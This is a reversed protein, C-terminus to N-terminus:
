GKREEKYCTTAKGLNAVKHFREMKYSPLTRRLETLTRRLETPHPTAWYLTRRLETPRADAQQIAPGLEIIPESLNNGSLQGAILLHLSVEAFPLPYIYQIFTISHIYTSYFILIFLLCIYIGRRKVHVYSASLNAFISFRPSQEVSYVCLPSQWNRDYM